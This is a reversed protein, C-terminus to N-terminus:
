ANTIFWGLVCIDCVVHVIHDHFAGGGGGGTALALADLCATRSPAPCPNPQGARASHAGDEGDPQPEGACDGAAPRRAPARPTRRRRARRLPLAARRRARESSSPHTKEGDALQKKKLRHALHKMNVTSPTHCDVTPKISALRDRPLKHVYRERQPVSRASSLPM